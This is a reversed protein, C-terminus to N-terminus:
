HVRYTHGQVLLPPWKDFSEEGLGQKPDYREGPGTPM